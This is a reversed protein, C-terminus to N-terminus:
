RHADLLEMYRRFWWLADANAPPKTRALEKVVEPPDDREASLNILGMKVDTTAMARADEENSRLCEAPDLDDRASWYRGDLGFVERTKLFLKPAEGSTGREGALLRSIYSSGLGTQTAFEGDTLGLHTLLRRLRRTLTPVDESMRRDNASPANVPPSVEAAGCAKVYALERDM